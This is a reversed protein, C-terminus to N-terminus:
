VAEDGVAISEKNESTIDSWARHASSSCEKRCSIHVWWRPGTGLDKRCSYNGCETWVKGDRGGRGEQLERKTKPLRKALLQDASLLNCERCVERARRFLTTQPDKYHARGRFLRQLLSPTGTVPACACVPDKTREYRDPRRRNISLRYCMACYPICTDLHHLLTTLPILPSQRCLLCIQNACVWCRSKEMDHCTYTRFVAIRRDFDEAPLVSERVSKSVYSLNIVDLYHLEQAVLILMDYTGLFDALPSKVGDGGQYRRKQRRKSIVRQTFDTMTMEIKQGLGIAAKAANRRRMRVPAKFSLPLCRFIFQPLSYLFAILIIGCVRLLAKLLGLASKAFDLFIKRVSQGSQKAIRVSIVFAVVNLVAIISCFCSFKNTRHPSFM